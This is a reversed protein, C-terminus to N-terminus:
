SVGYYQREMTLEINAVPYRITDIIHKRSNEDIANLFTGDKHQKRRFARIQDVPSIVKKGLDYGLFRALREPDDEQLSLASNIFFRNQYLLRNILGCSPMVELKRMDAYEKSDSAPTNQLGPHPQKRLENIFNINGPQFVDPYCSHINYKYAKELIVKLFDDFLVTKKGGDPNGEWCDLVYYTYRNNIFKIGIVSLAPNVDGWDLGMVCYDYDAYNNSCKTIHTEEDLQDFIQGEFDEWSALYEQRFERPTLTDRAENLIREIDPLKPNDQTFFHFYEWNHKTKITQIFRHAYTGKGKPTLSIFVSGRCRNVAPAIATWIGPKIDQFEDLFLRPISLGRLKDGNDENVGSLLIGPRDGKLTIIGQQRDINKKLKALVTNNFLYELSEWHIKKAQVLTPMAIANFMKTKDLPPKYGTYNIATLTVIGRGAISKGFGRGAVLVSNGGDIGRKVIEGQKPHYNDLFETM